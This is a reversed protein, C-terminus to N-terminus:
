ISRYWITPAIDDPVHELLIDYPDKNDPIELTMEIDIFDEDYSFQWTSTSVCKINCNSEETKVGNAETLAKNFRESDLFKDICAYDNNNTRMIDNGTISLLFQKLIPTVNIESM